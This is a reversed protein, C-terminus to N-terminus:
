TEGSGETLLACYRAMAALRRLSRESDLDVEDVLEALKVREQDDNAEFSFGARSGESWVLSARVSMPRLRGPVHLLMPITVEHEHAIASPREVRIGTSSLDTARARVQWREHGWVVDFAVRRREAGRREAAPPPRRM